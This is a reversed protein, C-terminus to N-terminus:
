LDEPFSQLEILLNNKERMLDDDNAERYTRELITKAVKVLALNIDSERKDNPDNSDALVLVREKANIITEMLDNLIHSWWNSELAERYASAVALQDDICEIRLRVEGPETSSMDLKDLTRDIWGTKKRAREVRMKLTNSM